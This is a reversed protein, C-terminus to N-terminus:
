VPGGDTIIWGASVFIARAAAPDGASYQATGFHVTVGSNWSQDIWGILTADYSPTSFATGNLMNPATTLSFIDFSALSQDFLTCDRFMSTMDTILRTDLQSLGPIQTLSSCGSFWLLFSTADPALLFIDTATVTLNSCDQFLASFNPLRLTGWNQIELLKLRDGVGAFRFGEILGRCEIEYIGPAAYTHTKDTDGFSTIINESGDGWNVTFNYSQGNILPLSVQDAASSGVSTLATDWRSIFHNQITDEPPEEYGVQIIYDDGTNRDLIYDGSSLYVLFGLDIAGLAGNAWAYYLIDNLSGTYGLERLYTFFKDNLAAGRPITVLDTLWQYKMDNLAGTYDQNRLYRFWLDNLSTAAGLVPAVGGQQQTVMKILQDRILDNLAQYQEAM